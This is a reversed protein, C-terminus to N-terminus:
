SGGQIEKIARMCADRVTHATEEAAVAQLLPIVDPRKTHGLGLAAYERVRTNKDGEIVEKLRAIAEDTGLYGLAEVAYSRITDKRHKSYKFLTEVAREDDGSSKGLAIACAGVVKIKTRKSTMVDLLPGTGRPDKAKALAEAASHQVLFDRSRLASKGCLFEISRKGGIAALAQFCHHVFMQNKNGAAFKMLADRAARSGDAGIANIQSVVLARNKQTKLIKYIRKVEREHAKKAEGELEPEEEEEAAPAETEEEAWASPAASGPAFLLLLLVLGWALGAARRGRIRNGM